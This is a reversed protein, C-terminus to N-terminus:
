WIEPATIRMELSLSKVNQTPKANDDMKGVPAVPMHQKKGDM